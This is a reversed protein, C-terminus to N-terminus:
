ALALNKESKHCIALADSVDDRIGELEDITAGFGSLIESENMSELIKTFATEYVALEDISVKVEAIEVSAISTTKIIEM